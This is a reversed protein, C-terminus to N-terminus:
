SFLSRYIKQVIKIYFKYPGFPTRLPISTTGGGGMFFFAIRARYRIRLLNSTTSGRDIFSLLELM